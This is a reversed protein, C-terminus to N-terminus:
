NFQILEVLFHTMYTMDWPSSNQKGLPKLQHYIYTFIGTGHLSQPIETDRPMWDGQWFPLPVNKTRLIHNSVEIM